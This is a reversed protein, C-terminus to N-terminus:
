FMEVSSNLEVMHYSSEPMPALGMSAALIRKSFHLVETAVWGQRIPATPEAHLQAAAHHSYALMRLARVKQYFLVAELTVDAGGVSRYYDLAEAMGWLREGDRVIEELFTQTSALDAAPDGIHAEEWDSMAVLEGDRFVEEGLGNTGKCLFVGPASFGSQDLLWEAAELFIPIPEIRFQEYARTVEEVYHRACGEASPAASLFEDLGLGRWDVAHVKALARLHEKASTIRLEDFEPSPDLFHEINWSGSVHQRVYFPRDDGVSGGEWWLAKAIPVDTRSLREYVHFEQELSSYDIAGAAPDRRFVLDLDQGGADTAAVLYTERSSGRGFKELDRVTITSDLKRSLYDEIVPPSFDM